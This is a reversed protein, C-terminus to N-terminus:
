FTFTKHKGVRLIDGVKPLPIVYGVVKDNISVVGHDILRRGEAHTIIFNLRELVKVTEIFNDSERM